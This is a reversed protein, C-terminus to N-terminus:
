QSYSPSIWEVLELPQLESNEPDFCLVGLRTDAIFLLGDRDLMADFPLRLFRGECNAYRFMTRWGRATFKTVERADVIIPSGENDVVLARGPLRSSKPPVLHRVPLESAPCDPALTVGVLHVCFQDGQQRPEYLIWLVGDAGFTLDVPRWILPDCPKLWEIRGDRVLAVCDPQEQSPPVCTSGMGAVVALANGGCAM